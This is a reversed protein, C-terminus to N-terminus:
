SSHSTETLSLVLAAAPSRAAHLLMEIEDPAVASGAARVLGDSGIAHLLPTVDAEYLDSQVSPLVNLLAFESEHFEPTARVFEPPETTAVVVDVEDVAGAAKLANLVRMTEQCSTCSPEAFVLLRPRGGPRFQVTDGSTVDTGRFTPATEGPHLGGRLPAGRRPEKSLARGLEGFAIWLLGGLALLLVWQVAVVVLPLRM